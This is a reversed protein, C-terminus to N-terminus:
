IINLILFYIIFLYNHYLSNKLKGNIFNCINGLIKYKKNNEDDYYYNDDDDDYFYQDNDRKILLLKLTIVSYFNSIDMIKNYFKDRLTFILSIYDGAEVNIVNNEITNNLSIYMPRSSFNEINSGVTNNEVESDKFLNSFTINNLNFNYFYFGGGFIGADNNIITNNYHKEVNLTYSDVYIAGGYYDAVNEELINNEISLSKNIDKLNEENIYDESLYIAGGNM